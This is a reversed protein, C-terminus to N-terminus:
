RHTKVQGQPHFPAPSTSFTGDIMWVPSRRMIDAGMDSLFIMMSESELRNIWGHKILFEGGDATQTLRSPIDAKMLDDHNKPLPPLPNERKKQRYLAQKLATSTSTSYLANPLESILLNHSIECLMAKTSTGPLSAHKKLAATEVEKAKRKLLNTSHAHDPLDDGVLVSSSNRSSVRASCDKTSCIWYTVKESKRNFYYRFGNEDTAQSKGRSTKFVNLISM